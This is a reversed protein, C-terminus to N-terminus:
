DTLVLLSYILSAFAGNDLRSIIDGGLVRNEEVYSTCMVGCSCVVMDAVLRAFKVRSSCFAGSPNVAMASRGVSVSMMLVWCSRKVTKILVSYSLRVKVCLREPTMRGVSLYSCIYDLPAYEIGGNM